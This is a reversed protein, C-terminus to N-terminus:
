LLVLFQRFDEDDQPTPKEPYFASYTHLVTWGVRGFAERSYAYKPPILNVPTTGMYDDVEAETAAYTAAGGCLIM